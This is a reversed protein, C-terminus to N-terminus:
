SDCKMGDAYRYVWCIEPSYDICYPRFITRSLLDFFWRVRRKMLSIRYVGIKAYGFNRLIAHLDRPSYAQIHSFDTRIGLNYFVNNSSIVLFGNTALHWKLFPIFEDLFVEMSLHEIVAFMTIMDFKMEVPVEALACYDHKFTTDQDLSVYRCSIPLYKEFKRDNAGIDLVTKVKGSIAVNRALSMSTVGSVPLKYFGTATMLEDKYRNVKQYNRTLDIYNNM